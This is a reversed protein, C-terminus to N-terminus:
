RITWASMGIANQARADQARLARRLLLRVERLQHAASGNALGPYVQTTVRRDQAPVSISISSTDNSAARNDPVRGSLCVVAAPTPTRHMALWAAITAGQGFGVVVLRDPALGRRALERDIWASVESAAASVRSSRSEDDIGRLSFWQRGPGASDAPQFGDPVLFHGRPVAGSLAHAVDEFSSADMGVDHLLVVLRDGAGERAAISMAHPRPALRPSLLFVASMSNM